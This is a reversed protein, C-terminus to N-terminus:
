KKPILPFLTLTTRCMSILAQRRNLRYKRQKWGQQPMFPKHWYWCCFYFISLVLLLLLFHKIM